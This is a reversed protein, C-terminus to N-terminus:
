TKSKQSGECCRALRSLLGGVKDDRSTGNICDILNLRPGLRHSDLAIGNNIDPTFLAHSRMDSSVGFDDIQFSPDQRRTEDLTVAMQHSQTVILKVKIKRIGIAIFLHYEHYLLRNFPCPRALPNDPTPPVLVLPVFLRLRQYPAERGM